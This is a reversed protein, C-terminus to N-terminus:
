PSPDGSTGARHLQQLEAEKAALERQRPLEAVFRKWLGIILFLVDTDVSARAPRTEGDGYKSVLTSRDREVEVLFGNGNWTWQPLGEARVATIKELLLDCAPLLIDVDGELFASVFALGRDQLSFRILPWGDKDTTL